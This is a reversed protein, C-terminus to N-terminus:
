QGKASTTLAMDLVLPMPSGTPVAIAWPNTGLESKESMALLSAYAIAVGSTHRHDNRAASGQDDPKHPTRRGRRDPRTTISAVLMVVCM